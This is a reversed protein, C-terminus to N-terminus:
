AREQTVERIEDLLAQLAFADVIADTAWHFAESQSRQLPPAPPGWPQVVGAAHWTLPALPALDVVQLM